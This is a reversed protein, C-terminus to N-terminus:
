VKNREGRFFAIYKQALEGSNCRLMVEGDRMVMFSDTGEKIDLKGIHYEPHQYVTKKDITIKVICNDLLGSGGLSNTNHVLLPIRHRGTSRGIYGMTYHQECWGRGTTTDGLFVRIRRGKTNELINIVGQPTEAHYSTGNVIKYENM